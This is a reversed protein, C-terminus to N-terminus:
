SGTAGLLAVELVLLALVVVALTIAVILAAVPGLNEPTAPEGQRALWARAAQEIPPAIFAIIRDIM